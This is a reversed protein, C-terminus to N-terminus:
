TYFDRLKGERISRASTVLPHDSIYDVLDETGAELFPGVRALVKDDLTSIEDLAPYKFHMDLVLEWLFTVPDRRGNLIRYLDGKGKFGPDIKEMTDEYRQIFVNVAALLKYLEEPVMNKLVLDIM